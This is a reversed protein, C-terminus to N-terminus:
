QIEECNQTWLNGATDSTMVWGDQPSLTCCTAQPGDPMAARKFQQTFFRRMFTALWKKITESEYVGSFANLAMMHIKEPAFGYRMFHYIFFDHLEYPGVLDETKQKINGKEDAPTLEPSIPTDVIDLLTNKVKEDNENNAIHRVMHQMLTKPVSANVGYMSMQDGNYTAWGLALESLDGTGIVLGGEQNAIDMLIQTRERAQANEYTVDHVSIDHDIDKFHQICAEKISIERTRTGLAEMLTLANNYTRDSTGFGPMTVATISNRPKGIIDCAKATVLLALTSDLGGSIGIVCSRSGTHVIRKALAIAQIQFVENCYEGITYDKAIFPHASFKRTLTYGPNAMQPIHIENISYERHNADKLKCSNQEFGSNGKRVKTIKEVDIETIACHEDTTHCVSEAIMDGIEAIACYGAYTANGTSEGWGIGAQVYGCRYRESLASINHRTAKHRGAVARVATPNLIIQAGAIALEAGPAVPTTSENGIEVAFTYSGTNFLTNKVFPAQKGAITAYSGNPLNHASTFWRGEGTNNDLDRKPVIGKIEGKHIVIACNYLLNRCEVPAGFVIVADSKATEKAIQAIANNCTQLFYPQAFLDGCKSSTLSLEPFLILETGSDTLRNVNEIIRQANKNCDAVTTTPSVAATRIFGYKM